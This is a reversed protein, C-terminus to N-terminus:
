SLTVGTANANIVNARVQCTHNASSGSGKTITVNVTFTNSAGVAGSVASMAATVTITAAGAVSAMGSGYASSITAVANVGATRAIAIDYSVTGSAENAGIAGGAGLSGVLTVRVSASHAANPITITLVGTPTADAIATVAKIFETVSNAAGTASGHRVTQTGAQYQQQSSDLTLALTNATYIKVNGGANSASLGLGGVGNAELLGSAAIYQNSTAYATSLNYLNTEANVNGLRLGASAATDNTTNSVFLQTIANANRSVTLNGDASSFLYTSARFSLGSTNDSAGAPFQLVGTGDTTLGGLLLNGSNPIFVRATGGTRISYAGSPTNLVINGAGSSTIIVNQASAGATLELDSAAASIIKSAIVQGTGSPTLTISQNTGNAAIAWAGSSNGTITQGNAGYLVGGPLRNSGLVVFPKSLTPM